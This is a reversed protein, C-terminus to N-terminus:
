REYPDGIRVHKLLVTAVALGIWERRTAIPAAVSVSVFTM